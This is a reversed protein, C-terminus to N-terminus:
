CGHSPPQGAELTRTRKAATIANRGGARQEPAGRPSLPGPIGAASHKAPPPPNTDRHEADEARCRGATLHGQAAGDWGHPRLQSCNGHLQAGPHPVRRAWQLPLDDVLGQLQTRPAARRSRM